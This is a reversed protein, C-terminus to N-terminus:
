AAEKMQGAAGNEIWYAAVMESLLRRSNPMGLSAMIAKYREDTM